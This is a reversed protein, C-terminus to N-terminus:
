LAGGHTAPNRSNFRSDLRPDFRVMRGSEVGAARALRREHRWADVSFAGAGHAALLLLGSGLVLHKMLAILRAPDALGALLPLGATISVVALLLAATRAQVGFLLALGAGLQLVALAPPLESSAGHADPLAAAGASLGALGSSLVVSSLGIRGLLAFLHSM